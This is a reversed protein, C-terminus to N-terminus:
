GATKGRIGDPKIGIALQIATREPKSRVVPLRRSGMVFNVDLLHGLQPRLLRDELHLSRLFLVIGRVRDRTQKCSPSLSSRFRSARFPNILNPVFMPMRPM